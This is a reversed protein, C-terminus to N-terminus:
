QIKITCKIGAHDSINWQSFMKISTIRDDIKKNVFLHDNQYNYDLMSSGMGVTKDIFGMNIIKEFAIKNIYDDTQSNFDGALLIMNEKKNNIIKGLETIINDNIKYKGFHSKNYFNIITIKENQKEDLPNEILQFDYCMLGIKGFYWNEDYDKTNSYYSDILRYKRDLIIASGWYNRGDVYESELEKSLEHYFINKRDITFNYIPINKQEYKKDYVIFPNIEQLLVFDSQLQSLNFRAFNKWMNIDEPSKYLFNENDNCTRKWYDLNWSVFTVYSYSM